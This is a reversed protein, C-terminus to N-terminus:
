RRDSMGSQPEGTPPRRFVRYLGVIATAVFVLLNLTLTVRATVNVLYLNAAIGLGLPGFVMLRPIRRDSALRGLPAQGVWWLLWVSVGVLLLEIAWLPAILTAMLVFAVGLGLALQALAPRREM